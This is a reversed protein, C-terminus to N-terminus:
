LSTAERVGLWLFLFWGVETVEWWGGWIAGGLAQGVALGPMSALM